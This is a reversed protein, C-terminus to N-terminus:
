TFAKESDADLPGNTTNNHGQRFTYYPPQGEPNTGPPEQQFPGAIVTVPQGNRFKNAPLPSITM